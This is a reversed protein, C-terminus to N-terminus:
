LGFFNLSKVEFDLSKRGIKLSKKTCWNPPSSVNQVVFVILQSERSKTSSPQINPLLAGIINLRPWLTCLGKLAFMQHFMEITLKKKVRYDSRSHTKEEINTFIKSFDVIWKVIALSNYLDFVQQIIYTKLSKRCIKM